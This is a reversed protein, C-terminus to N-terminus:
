LPNLLRALAVVFIFIFVFRLMWLWLLIADSNLKRWMNKVTCFPLCCLTFQFNYNHLSRLFVKKTCSGCSFGIYSHIM